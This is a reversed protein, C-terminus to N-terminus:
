ARERLRRELRKLVKKTALTLGGTRWVDVARRLTNRGPVRPHFLGPMGTDPAVWPDRCFALLPEAAREWTHTAALARARTRM